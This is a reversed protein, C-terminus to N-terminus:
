RGGIASSAQGTGGRADRLLSAPLAPRGQRQRSLRPSQDGVDPSRRRHARRQGSTCTASSRMSGAPGRVPRVLLQEADTAQTFRRVTKRDLHLRRCIASKSMGRERLDRIAEYRERTRVALRNEAPDTDAAPTPREASQPEDGDDSALEVLDDRRAIVAKGV